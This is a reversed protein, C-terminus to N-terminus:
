SGSQSLVDAFAEALAAGLDQSPLQNALDAKEIVAELSSLRSLAARLEGELHHGTISKTELNTIRKVAEEHSELIRAGILMGEGSPGIQGAPGEPGREGPNGPDGKPGPLGMPGAPGIPGAAAPRTELELIRAELTATKDRLALDIREAIIPGLAGALLDLDTDKM